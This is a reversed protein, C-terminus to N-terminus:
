SVVGFRLEGMANARITRLFQIRFKMCLFSINVISSKQKERYDIIVVRGGPALAARLEVQLRDVIHATSRMIGSIPNMHGTIFCFEPHSRQM